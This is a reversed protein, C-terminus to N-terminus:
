LWYQPVGYHDHTRREWDRDAYWNDNRPPAGTVEAETLDTVFGNQTTDYRLKGWPVPHHDEGMGLFGGVDIVAAGTTGAGDIHDVTGVKRDDAGYITAGELIAPTLETTTLRVHNTHDM